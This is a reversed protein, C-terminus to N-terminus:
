NVRTSGPIPFKVGSDTMTAERAAYDAVALAQVPLADAPWDCLISEEFVIAHHISPDGPVSFFNQMPFGVIAGVPIDAHKETANKLVVGLFAANKQIMADGGIVVIGAATKVDSQQVMQVLMFKPRPNARIM